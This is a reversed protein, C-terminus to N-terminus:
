MRKKIKFYSAVGVIIAFTVGVVLAWLIMKLDNEFLNYRADFIILPDFKGYKRFTGTGLEIVIQYLFIPMALVLLKNSIYLSFFEAALSLCGAFIGWQIGYVGFWLIYLKQSILTLYGASNKISEYTQSDIWPLRSACLLAFLMCGAGMVLISSLFTTITKSFVYKKLDGRSILYRMYHNELEESYVTGYPLVCFVFSLVFGVSYTSLLFTYIVSVSIDNVNGISFFLAATVGLVGLYTEKRHLIRHIDTSIYHTRHALKIM